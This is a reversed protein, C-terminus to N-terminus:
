AGTHPLSKVLNPTAAFYKSFTAKRSGHRYPNAYEIANAIRIKASTNTRTGFLTRIGTGNITADTVDNIQM